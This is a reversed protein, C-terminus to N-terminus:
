GVDRRMRQAFPTFAVALDHGGRQHMVPQRQSLAARVVHAIQTRQAVAAVRPMM